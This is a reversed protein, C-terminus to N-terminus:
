RILCLWLILLVMCVCAALISERKVRWDTARLYLEVCVGVLAGGIAWRFPATVFWPDFADGVANFVLGSFGGLFASGLMVAALRLTKQWQAAM